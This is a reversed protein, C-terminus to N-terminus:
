VVTLCLNCRNKLHLLYLCVSDGLVSLMRCLLLILQLSCLLSLCPIRPGFIAPTPWKVLKCFCWDPVSSSDSGAPSIKSPSMTFGWHARLPLPKSVPFLLVEDLSLSTAVPGCSPLPQLHSDQPLPRRHQWSTPFTSSFSFRVRDGLLFLSIEQTLLSTHGEHVRLQIWENSWYISPVQLPGSSAPYPPVGFVCRVRRLASMGTQPSMLVLYAFECLIYCTTAM